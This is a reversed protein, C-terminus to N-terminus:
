VEAGSWWGMKNLIKADTRQINIYSKKNTMYHRGRTDLLALGMSSILFHDSRKLIKSHKLNPITKLHKISNV